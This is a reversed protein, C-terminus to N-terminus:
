DLFGICSLCGNPSCGKCAFAPRKAAAFVSAAAASKRQAIRSAKMARMQVRYFLRQMLQKKKQRYAALTFRRAEKLAEAKNTARCKRYRKAHFAYNLLLKGNAEQARLAERAHAFRLLLTFEDEAEAEMERKIDAYYHHKQYLVNAKNQAHWAQHKANILPNLVNGIMIAQERKDDIRQIREEMDVCLLHKEYFLDYAARFAADSAIAEPTEKAEATCNYHTNNEYETIYTALYYPCTMIIHLKKPSAM